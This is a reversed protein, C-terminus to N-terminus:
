AANAIYGQILDRIVESTNRNERLCVSKLANKDSQEIKFTLIMPPESFIPKRAM